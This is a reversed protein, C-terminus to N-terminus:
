NIIHCQFPPRLRSLFHRMGHILGGQMKYWPPHIQMITGICFLCAVYFTSTVMYIFAFRSNWCKRHIAMPYELSFSIIKFRAWTLNSKNKFSLWWFKESFCIWCQFLLWLCLDKLSLIGNSWGSATILNGSFICICPVEIAWDDRLGDVVITQVQKPVFM